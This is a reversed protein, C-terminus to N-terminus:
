RHSEKESSSAQADAAPEPASSDAEEAPGGERRVLLLPIGLDRIRTLHGHLGAEDVVPGRLITVPSGDPDTSHTLAFGPFSESWTQDLHGRLRFEYISQAATSAQGM